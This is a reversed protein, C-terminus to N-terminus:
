HTDIYPQIILALAGVIVFALIVWFLMLNLKM